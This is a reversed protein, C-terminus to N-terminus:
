IVTIEDNGLQTFGMTCPKFIVPAFITIIEIYRNEAQCSKCRKPSFFCNQQSSFFLIKAGWKLFIIILLM